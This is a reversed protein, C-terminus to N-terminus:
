CLTFKSVFCLVFLVFLVVAKTRDAQLTQRVASNHECKNKMNPM